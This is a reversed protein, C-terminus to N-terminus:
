LSKREEIWLNIEDELIFLPVSGNRLIRDHFERIDFNSGLEKEAKERLERIKLEGVKYSLAQGPWGIYRNIETNVEHLSLATNSAMFEVAEDRTWGFAHIGTDVVLRCARWMEYTLRGFDQYPTEYMGMEKGLYESYLGWGEGFCSLYTNSRFEPLDELEQSLMIQLHHGPVAEHLTLAPLVYLPRSELKYTNVWYTGQRNNEYSGPVYRGGTYNPAIADPVPEVGYPMSPLTHFLAPLKGDAKKALYSAEKLLEGPTRAYFQPDTRLFDLFEAFSGEFGTKQIITEMESRIREVESKGLEHIDEATMPLTTFYAVRQEYLETGSPQALVGVDDAANPIYEEAFFTLLSKYAPVVSEAIATRANERITEGDEEAIGPILQKFPRFFMSEEPDEVIHPKILGEYGSMIVKPLTRGKALGERLIEIYSETYAKLGGLRQIFKEYDNTDEPRFGNVMYVYGAFFGGESNIPVLYDELEARAIQDELIFKFIDYNIQDERTLQDRDIEALEELIGKRFEARRKIDEVSVKPLEGAFEERGQSVAYFPNEQISYENEKEFLSHLAENGTDAEDTTVQSTCSAILVVLLFSLRRM